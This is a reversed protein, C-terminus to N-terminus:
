SFMNGPSSQSQPAEAKEQTNTKVGKNTNQSLEIVLTRIAQSNLTILHNGSTLMDIIAQMYQKYRKRSVPLLGALRERITM